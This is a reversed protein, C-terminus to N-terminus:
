ESFRQARVQVTYSDAAVTQTSHGKIDYRFVNVPTGSSIYNEGGINSGGFGTGSRVVVDLKNASNDAGSLRAVSRAYSPIREGNVINVYMKSQTEGDGLTITGSALITEINIEGAPLTDKAVLEHTIGSEASFAIIASADEHLGDPTAFVAGSSLAMTMTLFSLAYKKMKLIRNMVLVCKQSAFLM